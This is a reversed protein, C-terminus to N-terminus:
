TARERANQVFREVAAEGFREVLDGYEVWEGELEFQENTDEEEEDGAWRKRDIYMTVMGNNGHLGFLLEHYTVTRIDSDGERM